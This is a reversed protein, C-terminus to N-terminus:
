HVVQQDYQKGGERCQELGRGCKPQLVEGQPLLESDQTTGRGLAEFENCGIPEETDPERPHPGVPSGGQQDNMWFGDDRPVAFTKAEEPPPLDAM